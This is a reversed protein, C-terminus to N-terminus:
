EVWPTGPMPRDALLLRLGQLNEKLAAVSRRRAGAVAGRSLADIIFLGTLGATAALGRHRRYFRLAGRQLEHHVIRLPLRSVTEGKRHRAGAQPELYVYLGRERMRWNLEFDSFLLPMAEDMGGTLLERRFMLCAAGAHDVAVARNVERLDRHSWWAVARGGLLARDVRRGVETLCTAAVFLSPFRYCFDQMTGDLDFLRPAAAAAEPTRELFAVLQGAARKDPSCDPNCFLVYPAECRLLGLNTARTYGVNQDLRV